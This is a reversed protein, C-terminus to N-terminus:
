MQINDYLVHENLGNLLSIFIIRTIAEYIPFIVAM